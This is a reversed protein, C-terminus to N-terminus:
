SASDAQSIGQRDRAAAVVAQGLSIGGDNPPVQHHTLVDFGAARLGTITRGVLAVNQFVGGSLAVTSYGHRHRLEVCVSIIMQALGGHFRAAIVGTPVHAARDRVVSRILDVAQVQPVEEDTVSVAYQGPESDDIMQELEVAAQGEYRVEDRVDLIAAVADFLRGASSTLPSNIDAAAAARVQDWRGGQRAAVPLDVPMTGDFAADLYSAAMRWPARIAAAGGPLRVPSLHAARTSTVLDAILFEGGWVTGDGGYGTGDFAVGIVPGDSGNDALCSAVHAHHHQVGVLEVGDLEMAHKTSLYDPHLDFAVVAPAIDLLRQLHEIGARFSAFTEFNELDGIHHSVFAHQERGLCVTNKLEAGCALVPREFRWPLRIPTPAYGRSRRLLVPGTPTSRAVSDDVRTQIARDHTLFVDAVTSLRDFADTDDFAIPEDSLNGSTLVIAAGFAELLLHHLPTYALMLGLERTRPAIASAIDGGTTRRLLVIPREPSELLRAAAADIACLEEAAALDSVMVAFPRDERHKRTRLRAVADENTADAALHYGGLGKIAMIDGRRLHEAAARIPDDVNLEGRRSVLRLSPGCAPCCVPQAHYRRNHPDDYEAQCRGCMVFDAMTTRQRDYPLDRVITYRPGCNTCNTFAYRYRRDAPDNIERVCDACTGADAAVIADRRNTVESAAITFERDGVAPRVEHRIHDVRALPPPDTSLAETLRRLAEDEGEAEIFVGHSDNGVFGTLGLRRALEAVFPRFGVGQVIGTVEIRVRSPPNPLSRPRTMAILNLACQSHPM